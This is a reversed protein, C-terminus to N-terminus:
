QLVEARDNTVSIACQAQMYLQAVLLSQLEQETEVPM